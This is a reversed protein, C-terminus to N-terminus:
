RGRVLEATTALDEPDAPRPIWPRVLEESDYRPVVHVHLHFVTQWAAVGTAIVVNCGAAGLTDRVQRAVAWAAAMVAVADAEDADWLDVVHRRPVVLTHGRTAPNIDLFAVTADDERVVHAPAEGAVIACFICANM